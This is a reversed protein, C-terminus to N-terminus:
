GHGSPWGRRLFTLEEVGSLKERLDGLVPPSGTGPVLPAMSNVITKYGAWGPWRLSVGGKDEIENPLVKVEQGPEGAAWFYTGVYSSEQYQFTIGTAGSILDSIRKRDSSRAGYYDYIRPM